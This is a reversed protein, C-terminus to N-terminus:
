SERCSYVKKNRQWIMSYALLNNYRLCFVYMFGPVTMNLSNRTTQVTENKTPLGTPLPYCASRVTGCLTTSYSYPLRCQYSYSSIYPALINSLNCVRLSLAANLVFYWKLFKLLRLSVM